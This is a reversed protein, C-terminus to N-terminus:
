RESESDTISVIKATALSEEPSNKGSRIGPIKARLASFQAEFAPAIGEPVTITNVILGIGGILPIYQSVSPIGTSLAFFFLGTPGIIGGVVGGSIATLGAMFGFALFTLGTFADWNASSITQEQFAFMCGALGALASSFGFVMLKTRPVNIGVAAAARENARVALLRRGTGSRRTNAVLVAAGAAVVVAFLTFVWRDPAGNAGQVSLNLGFLRPTPVLSPTSGSLGSVSQTSFFLDQITLAAALTIVALQVGRVRVAPLGVIMGVIATAILALPVAVIMPFGPGNMVFVAASSGHGNSMLRVMVIAGVGSLTIQALSVQGSFGTLLVYSLVLIITILSTTLALEWAGSLVAGLLLAAVSLAITWIPVNRPYPSKPLLNGGVSGRVPLRDGRFILVAGIALMPIAESAGNVVWIPIVGKSSLYVVFSSAAGLGMGGVWTLPISQLGGLLAAGLAPVLLTIYVDPNLSGAVSGAVVGALAGAVGSLVWSLLALRTPYYGLLTAGLENGAAARISVGSRTFRYFLWLVFVLGASVGVIWLTQISFPEGLNLFNNLLGSPFFSALTRTQTGFNLLAVANLYLFLGVSAIVKALPAAKRIPRFVLFHAMAGLLVGMFMAALVGPVVGTPGDALRLSSPIGVWPFQITGFSRMQSYAYTAYMAMSAQAFNIVGTGKYTAVLASGLLAYLSGAGLGLLIFFIAVNM